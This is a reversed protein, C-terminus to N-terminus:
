ESSTLAEIAGIVLPVPPRVRAHGVCGCSRDHTHTGGRGTGDRGEHGVPTGGLQASSLVERRQAAPLVDDHLHRPVPLPALQGSCPVASYPPPITCWLRPTFVDAGAPSRLCRCPLTSCRLHVVPTMTLAELGSM